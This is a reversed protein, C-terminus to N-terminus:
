GFRAMAAACSVVLALGLLELWLYNQIRAIESPPPAFDPETALRKKWRLYTLTPPISLLGVAIFATIKAWFFINVSYYAWGKAALTARGFGVVVIVGALIGYFLDIRALKLIDGPKLTERVLALESALIATFSFVLLHHAIAFVLDRTAFDL